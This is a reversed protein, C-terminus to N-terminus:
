LNKCNIINEFIERVIPAAVTSGYQGGIPEDVIALALYKPNDSPFFGVFSMVYKGQSIVGNEYKQATGTKGGVKAGEIFAQKGSGNEVVGELYGALIKSAQNSIVRRKQKPNIIEAINGYEDYIESVFYPEYYIGGNIASATASALQLPTVAITQGFSIRALDGDTVASEPVVMGLAEGQFDVGTVKGYGFAEIYDYMKEKGLSMAIDVFCPNCSNNLAMALNENAHKGNAHTSWCKIQKGGVSRFRSSNFVHDPSFANPNGQLYEEINAAATLVKFTSGPEYSDVIISCRGVKNLTEIDERPLENLDYSPSQSLALIQGNSPDLVVVSASKPTYEKYAKSIVADCIAQIEFDITLKVNLGDTASLYKVSKGELDKGVLDAEYLIEGNYGSLYNDYKKEIGTQGSGDTSTYGLVQCLSQGYPYIRTNDSSFYVGDLNIKSLKDVTSKDVRRKVTIISTASETMKKYLSNGDIELTDALTIAVKDFDTVSRSRVYVAYSQANGVLVVGNRDTILGRKAIIPLERTWQDIAKSQLHDGWVIQVYFVRGLISL